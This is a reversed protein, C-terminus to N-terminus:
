GDRAQREKPVFGFFLAPALYFLMWHGSFARLTWRVQDPTLPVSSGRGRQPLHSTAVVFNVVMYVFFAGVLWPVVRPFYPRLAALDLPQRRSVTEGPARRTWKQMRFVMALLLPFIAAHMAFFFPSGSGLVPGTFSSLHIVMSALFGALGCGSLLGIQFRPEVGGAPRGTANRRDATM